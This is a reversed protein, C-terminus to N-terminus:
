DRSGFHGPALFFDEIRILFHSGDRAFADAADFGRDDNSGFRLAFRLVFDIRQFLGSLPYRSISVLGRDDRCSQVWNDRHQLRRFVLPDLFIVVADAPLMECAVIKKGAAMRNARDSARKAEHANAAM